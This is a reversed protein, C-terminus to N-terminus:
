AKTWTSVVQELPWNKGHMDWSSNWSYKIGFVMNLLLLHGFPDHIELFLALIEKLSLELIQKELFDTLEM